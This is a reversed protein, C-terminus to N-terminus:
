DGGSIVAPLIASVVLAAQSSEIAKRAAEGVADGRVIMAIRAKRDRLDWKDFVVKLLGASKALSLIVATRPGVDRNESLV